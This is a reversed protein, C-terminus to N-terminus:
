EEHLQLGKNNNESGNAQSPIAEYQYILSVTLAPILFYM